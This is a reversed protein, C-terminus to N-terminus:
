PSGARGTKLPTPSTTFAEAEPTQVGSLSLDGGWFALEPVLWHPMLKPLIRHVVPSAQRPTPTEILLTQPNGNRPFSTLSTQNQACIIASSRFFRQASLCCSCHFPVQEPRGLSGPNQFPCGSCCRRCCCSLVIDNLM